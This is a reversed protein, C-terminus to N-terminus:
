AHYGYIPIPGDDDGLGFGEVDRKTPGVEIRDHTIGMSPCVIM